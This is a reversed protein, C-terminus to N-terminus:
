IVGTLHLTVLLMVVGGIRYIWTNRKTPKEDDPNKGHRGFAGLVTLGLMPLPLIAFSWQAFQPSAGLLSGVLATTVSAIVLSFALGPIGSPLLKWLFTSNPFHDQFWSLISPLIFLASGVWIQWSNGLLATALLIWISYKVLMVVAKQVRPPEPMEDPNIKDLREPYFRAAIEEFGVRFLVAVAIFLGFDAVHNAVNLTVGALAPLSSIISTATWGAIFPAIAFDSIREWWSPGDEAPPKRISRFATAMLSPGIMAVMVGMLLRYDALGPQHVALVLSGITFVLGAVFGAFADLCAIMIMILLLQWPPTVIQTVSDNANVLLSVTALAGNIAPLILALTGLMARLYAGDNVLKAFLPSIRALKESWLHSRLDLFTM